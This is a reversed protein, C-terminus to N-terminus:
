VETSINSLSHKQLYAIAKQLRVPDERFNGIGPNCGRCLIDRLKFPKKRHDWHGTTMDIPDGCIECKYNQEALKREKDAISKGYKRRYHGERSQQNRTAKNALYNQAKAEKERVIREPKARYEARWERDCDPDDKRRQREQLKLKERNRERYAKHYAVYDEHNKYGM